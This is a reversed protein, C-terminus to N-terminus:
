NKSGKVGAGSLTGNNVNIQVPIADKLSEVHSIIGITKGDQRIKLLAETARELYQPDLTGFGEDLFFSEISLSASNMSSLGLALALSTIFTEGGSLGNAPREENNNDFDIVNFSLSETDDAKLIYRDSFDKLRNNAAKILERFTFSQAYKM